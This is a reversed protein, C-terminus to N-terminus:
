QLNKMQLCGIWRKPSHVLVADAVSLIAQSRVLADAGLIGDIPPKSYSGLYDMPMVICDFWLFAAEGLSLRDISTKQVKPADDGAGVVRADTKLVTM